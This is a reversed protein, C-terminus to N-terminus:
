IHVSGGGALCFLIASMYVLLYHCCKKMLKIYKHLTSTIKKFLVYFDLDLPAVARCPKPRCLPRLRDAFSTGVKASLPTDRPWRLPDGRGNVRNVSGPDSSIKNLYSRFQGWSASHVGSWVSGSGSLFDTLAPFRVRSRQIQLWFSQGSSWLPPWVFFLHVTFINQLLSNGEDKSCFSSM